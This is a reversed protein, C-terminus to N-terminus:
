YLTPKLYSYGHSQYFAAIDLAKGCFSRLEMNLCRVRVRRLEIVAVM